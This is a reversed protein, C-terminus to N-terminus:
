WIPEKALGDAEDILYHCDTAVNEFRQIEGSPWNVTVEDIVAASGLGFHARPDSASFISVATKVEWLQKLEGTRVTIRAGIGDRNSKRGRLKFMVWHNSDRRDCRLLAPRDNMNAVVIDLDGDNDYDAFAAGRSSRGRVFDPGARESVDVFGRGALNLYLSGPQFYTEKGEASKLFPVVHGNFHVIDKWGDLNVDMFRAGWGVLSWEAEMLPTRGTIDEWLLDGQNHYLTSYDASFHTAFVDMRGDNDYDAVDVGMSGQNRGDMSVALGTLFGMEECTGDGRNLYLLNPGDDNAVYLDLDGDGDIDSWVAALGYLRHEDVVGAARTADTFTGDGNNRYLVDPSGPLGRPGCLIPKGKYFCFLNSGPEPLNNFDLEIYNCVYLDLRGDGDYDGFAASSSWLPCAVGMETGVETFTGDGNNRYLYNPGLNTLYIDIDGDNDYDAATVGMGWAGKTLGASETVDQFTGDGLNHYLAGHPNDGARFRELTSGQVVYIDPRGDGDYDLFAIGGGKAEFIYKKVDAAGNIHLFKIGAAETVDVFQPVSELLLEDPRLAVALAAAILSLSRKM